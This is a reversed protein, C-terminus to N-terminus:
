RKGAQAPARPAARRPTAAPRQQRGAPQASRANFDPVTHLLDSAEGRRGFHAAYDPNPVPDRFTVAAYNGLSKATMTVIAKIPPGNLLRQIQTVFGDFPRLMTPSLSMRYIPADPANHAEPDQPDVFLVALERTNKCAKSRGGAGSGFVNMSCVGCNEAQVQPSEPVPAMDAIVKNDAYCVPPTPNNRDYAGVYLMNKSTYDVVVVQIEDGLNSGDPLIFSGTPGDIKLMKGATAGITARLAQAENSLEADVLAINKGANATAVAKSARAM